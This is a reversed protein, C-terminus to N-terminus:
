SRIIEDVLWKVTEPAKKEFTEQRKNLETELEIQKEKAEERIKKKINEFYEKEVNVRKARAEAVIKGSQTKANNKITEAEAQASKLREEAEREVKVIEEITSM